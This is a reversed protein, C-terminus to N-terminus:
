PGIPPAKERQVQPPAIEPEVLLPPAVVKIPRPLRNENISNRLRDTVSAGANIPVANPSEPAVQRAKVSLDACIVRCSSTGVPQYWFVPAIKDDRKIGKGAYRANSEAPLAVAFAIGRKLSLLQEVNNLQAPGAQGPNGLAARDIMLSVIAGNDFADPFRGKNHDSLLKLAVILDQETPAAASVNVQQVSYGDPPKVAFLTEDLEVDFEFHTMTAKTDSLLVFTMEVLIPRGTKPDGWMSAEYDPTKLLFGMTERGEIQKKGLPKMNGATDGDAALLSTRLQDFFNAPKKETPVDALNFVMATKRSPTLVTMKGTNSDAIQISGDPMEQRLRGPELVLTRFTQKPLDKGEVVVMFRATKAKIIPDVMQAFAMTSHAGFFSLYVACLSAAILAAAAFRRVPRSMFKSWNLYARPVPLPSPDTRAADFAALVRERLQERHEQRCSDDFPLENLRDRFGLEDDNM